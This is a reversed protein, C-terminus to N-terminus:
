TRFNKRVKITTLQLVTTYYWNLLTSQNASGLRQTCLTKEFLNKMKKEYEEPILPLIEQVNGTKLALEAAYRIEKITSDDNRYM